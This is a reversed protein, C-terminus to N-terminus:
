NNNNNNSYYNTMYTLGLINQINSTSNSNSLYRNYNSQNYSLKRKINDLQNEQRMILDNIKEKKAEDSDEINNREKYLIELNKILNIGELVLDKPYGKIYSSSLLCLDM